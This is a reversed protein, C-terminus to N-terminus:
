NTPTKSMKIKTEPAASSQLKRSELFILYSQSISHLNKDNTKLLNCLKTDWANRFTIQADRNTAIDGKSYKRVAKIHMVQTSPREPATERGRRPLPM